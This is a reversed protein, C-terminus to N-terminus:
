GRGVETGSSRTADFAALCQEAAECFGVADARSSMGSVRQFRTESVRVVSVCLWGACGAQMTTLMHARMAVIATTADILRQNLLVLGDLSM